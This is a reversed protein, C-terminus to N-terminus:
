NINCSHQTFWLANHSRSHFIVWSTSAVSATPLAPGLHQPCQLFLLSILLYWCIYESMKLCCEARYPLHSNMSMMSEMDQHWISIELTKHYLVREIAQPIKIFISDWWSRALCHGVQQWHDAMNAMLHAASMGRHKCLINSFKSFCLSHWTRSHLHIYICITYIYIHICM